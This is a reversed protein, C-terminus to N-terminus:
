RLVDLMTTQLIRANVRLAAEYMAERQTLDMIAEAMDADELESLLKESTFIGDDLYSKAEQLRNQRAGIEARAAVLADLGADLAVITAGSVPNGATLEASLAVLGALAPAFAVDATVNTKVTQGPGTRMMMAGADGQYAGTATTYPATDTKFGSFLYSGASKAQTQGVMADILQDAEKALAQRDFPSLAGNAGQIALEHARQIMEGASGLAIESASMTRDATDINRVYQNLESIADRLKLATWTQGPDDSPRSLRRGSAVREQARSMRSANAQLNRLADQHLMNTTVRM